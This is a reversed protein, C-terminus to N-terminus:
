AAVWEGTDIRFSVGNLARVETEGMHYVKTVQEVEIM